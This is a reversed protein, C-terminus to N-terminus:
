RGKMYIATKRMGDPNEHNKATNTCFYGELSFSDDERVDYIGNKELVLTDGDKINLFLESLKNMNEAKRRQSSLM